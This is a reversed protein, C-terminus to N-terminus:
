DVKKVEEINSSIINWNEDFNFYAKIKKGQLILPMWYKDDPLMEDFPIKDISFWQPKMEDSETITGEWDTAIYLHFGIQEKQGKYYEEFFIYGVKEYNTPLVGIEEKCERLMAEDPTEGNELKGGIGNYKGKGFGRKKLALLVSDDKKLICLTTELINM